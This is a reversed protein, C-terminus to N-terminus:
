RKIDGTWGMIGGSLNYLKTFGMNAMASCASGSRGGSRCYVYYSKTKDLEQIKSSFAPGSVDILTAGPIHGERYEGPTRVDLLVSNKDTKLGEQFAKANINEYNKTGFLGFM